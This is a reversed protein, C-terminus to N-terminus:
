DLRKCTGHYQSPLPESLLVVHRSHVYMYDTGTTNAFVTTININGSPTAEVFTLGIATLWVIVDEAGANGILRARGKKTNIADFHIVNNKGWTSTQVVPRGSAWDTSAGPGITCRLTKATALRKFAGDVQQGLVPQGFCLTLVALIYVPTRGNM